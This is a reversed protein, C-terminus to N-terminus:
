KVEAFNLIRPVPLRAFDNVPAKKALVTKEINAFNLYFRYPSKDLYNPIFNKGNSNRYSFSVRSNQGNDTSFSASKVHFKM